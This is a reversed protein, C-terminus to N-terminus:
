FYVAARGHGLSTVSILIVVRPIWPRHAFTLPRNVFSYLARRRFADEYAHQGSPRLCDGPELCGGRVCVQVFGHQEALQHGIAAPLTM